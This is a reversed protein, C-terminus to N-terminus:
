DKKVSHYIIAYIISSLYEYVDNSYYVHELSHLLM